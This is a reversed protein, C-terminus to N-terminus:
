AAARDRSQKALSLLRVVQRLTREAAGQQSQVLERARRGLADAFAPDDLTRRLFQTMQEVDHVVVAAERDLLMAVVDRFNRTNPGFSVAVGYAAPEIMNQGGRNGLSGGVFGVSATAWWSGLEGVTDVLLVRAAQDADSEGAADPPMKSRKSWAVGSRDLLAAVEEFRDPHRPVLILRLRPYEDRLRLYADLACQEEPAQTSGALFVHDEPSIGVLERLHEAAEHDRDSRAGDFKVSGTVVVSQPAAGLQRFREAYEENQAAILDVQRLMWAALPAIRRYGRFSRESLRGNVVAVKAGQQHAIRILNPWLELEALLLVDPRVRRVARSVAWSFDLPCYFVPFNAYKRRALEFGTRTTTSIFIDWDPHRQALPELLTELLNVEGVSVAHFWMCPHDGIRRPTRGFLKQRWGQRYRGTRVARWVLWPSVAALLLLYVLDLLMAM